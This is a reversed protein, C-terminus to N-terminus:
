FDVQQQQKDNIATTKHQYCYQNHQQEYIDIISVLSVLPTFFSIVNCNPISYTFEM